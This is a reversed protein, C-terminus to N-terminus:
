MPSLARPKPGDSSTPFVDDGGGSRSVAPDLRLFTLPGEPGKETQETQKGALALVQAPQREGHALDCFRACSPVTASM